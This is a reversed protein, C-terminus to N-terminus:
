TRRDRNLLLCSRFVRARRDARDGLNVVIHTQEEGPDSRRKRGGRPQRNLRLLHLVHDVPDHRQLLARAAIQKRRDDAVPFAFVAFLEQLQALLPKLPDFDITRKILQIFRRHQVLLEAM